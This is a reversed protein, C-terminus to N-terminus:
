VKRKLLYIWFIGMFSPIAEIVEMKTSKRIDGMSRNINSFLTDTIPNILRRFISPRMGDPLFKDFVAIRGGPKLVREAEQICRYPDPIVALILHLIVADFSSDSYELAQGDMVKADVTLNFKVAKQKLKSLMAPTYDIATISVNGELFPLDLGTGAGVILVREAPKLRLLGISQKREKAFIGAIPDYIFSYLSYRIRNWKNSNIGMISSPYRDKFYPKYWVL